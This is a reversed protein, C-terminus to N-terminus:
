VCFPSPVVGVYRTFVLTTDCDTENARLSFLAYGCQKDFARALFVPLSRCRKKLLFPRTCGLGAGCCTAFPDNVCLGGRGVSRVVAAVLPRSFVFRGRGVVNGGVQFLTTPLRSVCHKLGSELLPLALGAWRASGRCATVVAQPNALQKDCTQARRVDVWRAPCASLQSRELSPGDSM